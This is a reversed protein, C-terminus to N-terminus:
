LEIKKLLRNWVELHLHNNSTPDLNTATRNKLNSGHDLYSSNM